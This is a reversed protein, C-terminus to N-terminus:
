QRKKEKGGGVEMEQLYIENREEEKEKVKGKNESGGEGRNGEKERTRQWVNPQGNCLKSADRM